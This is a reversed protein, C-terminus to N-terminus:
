KHGEVAIWDTGEKTHIVVKSFGAEKFMEEFLEPTPNTLDFKRINARVRDSLDDKQYIDATLLFVGNDDLVRWVEGLDEVPHPWFYFSEVTVVKDFSGDYFPLADVSAEFIDMREKEIDEANFERSTDVSVPSYDVGTLHGTDIFKSLRALAAGGGCGVDLIKDDPKIDLFSFAWETVEAHSDNMRKLMMTGAEGEPKRPNGMETVQVEDMVDQEAM